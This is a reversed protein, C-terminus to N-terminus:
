KSIQKPPEVAYPLKAEGPGGSILNAPVRSELLSLRVSIDNLKDNFGGQVSNVIAQTERMAERQVEAALSKHREELVKELASQNAELNIIREHLKELVSSFRLQDAKLRDIEPLLDAYRLADQATKKVDIM